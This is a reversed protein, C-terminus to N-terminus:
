YKTKNKRMLRFILGFIFGVGIGSLHAINGVDSPNFIGIIDIFIWLIAAVFMPIIMGFAWVMMLPKIITLVGIIGFIAGSAGLSSPYYNISILNALIGSFFFVLLLKRSGILKELILGFIILAFLNFILHELSGHLFISTAFRYIELNNVAKENLLFSESFGPVSAQLIFVIICALSLWLAYFKNKQKRAMNLLEAGAPM